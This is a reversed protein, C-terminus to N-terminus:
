RVAIQGVKSGLGIGFYDIYNKLCLSSCFQSAGSPAFVLIWGDPRPNHNEAVVTTLCEPGDCNFIGMKM